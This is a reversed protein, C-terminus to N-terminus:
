QIPLQMVEHVSGSDSLMAPTTPAQGSQNMVHCPRRVSGSPRAHRQHGYRRCPGVRAEPGETRIPHDILGGTPLAEPLSVRGGWGQITLSNDQRHRESGHRIFFRGAQRDRPACPQYPPRPPRHPPRV